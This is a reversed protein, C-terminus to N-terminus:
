TRLFRPPSGVEFQSNGDTHPKHLALLYSTNEDITLRTSVSNLAIECVRSYGGTELATRSHSILNHLADFSYSRLTNFLEKRNRPAIYLDQGSIFRKVAMYSACFGMLQEILSGHETDWFHDTEIRNFSTAEPSTPAYFRNLTEDTM